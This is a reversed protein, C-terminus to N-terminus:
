KILNEDDIIEGNDEKPDTSGFGGRNNDGLDDVVIIEIKNTFMWKLKVWWPASMAPRVEFQAIRDGESIKTRRLAIANFYWIDGNGNYGKQDKTDGDVVGYHNAMIVGYKSYTSSRPVINAQFYKPLKISVGLSIMYNKLSNISVTEASKLDVWNGHMELLCNQNHYKVYIKM